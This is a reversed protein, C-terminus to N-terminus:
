DQQFIEPHIFQAITELGQVARPGPRCILEAHLQYIRNNACADTCKFRAQNKVYSLLDTTEKHGRSTIIVQPNKKIIAELLDSINSRDIDQMINVGGAIEIIKNIACSKLAVCLPNHSCVYCVKPKQKLAKTKQCIKGIREKTEEALRAAKDQCGILKGVFSIARPADLITETGVTYAAINKARLKSLAGKKLDIDTALVLDPSLAIIKEIDPNSYGGIKDILKAEPPYNCCETVGTLKDGEGLAFIIETNSPALSVIKQINMRENRM